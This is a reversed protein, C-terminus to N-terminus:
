EFVADLTSDPVDWTVNHPPLKELRMFEPMRDQAKGIGAARNFALERDLVDKGIRGVDAMTWSTGLVGNCEEVVGEFGSAIDLIAFAIFLCHGTSDIFGTAYQFNRALAAKDRDFQDVKGSVGLIEPAITYGSTHDAGMTAIAYTIGIGKVARPEYAPMAQGKVVPVRRVGLLRAATATGNGLMRGLPTGKGVEHMLEIARKADGFQLLGGEMAVAMTCGMEITDVGYANCLRILEGTDDLSGIGCNAGFAWISEYEQCSVHETGDPKYWTNSCRIICGPSCAHNYLEKGLREKNGEFVAEGAIQAANEYRGSSFNRTPLGGAENLINILVATGYSNLAGKPKTIAHSMLADTLKKRGLEFVEKNALPVGPAGKRDIVIFKLGKSGMVAGLGGRGAYRAPRGEQDEFVVGSNSYRLEGAVGVGAVSVKGFRDFLQPFVEYLDRGAYEDAPLWTVDPKGSAANWTIHAMWWGASQPYGEVVIARIGLSALAPAFGTGANAEKIGGTLPSKGGVSLRSSTPASTGTVMGPAIVLKNSPGLAHCQPDVEDHVVASTLGRGGLLRYAEPLDQLAVTRDTMNLRLLKAM